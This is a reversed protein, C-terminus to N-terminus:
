FSMKNLSEFLRNKGRKEYHYFAPVRDYMIYFSPGQFDRLNLFVKGEGKAKKLSLYGIEPFKSYFIRKFWRRKAMVLLISNKVRDLM